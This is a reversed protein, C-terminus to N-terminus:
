TKVEHMTAECGPHFRPRHLVLKFAQDFGGNGEVLWEKGPASHITAEIARGECRFEVKPNPPFDNDENWRRQLEACDVDCAVEIRIKQM